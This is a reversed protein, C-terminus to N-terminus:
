LKAPQVPSTTKEGTSLKQPTNEDRCSPIGAEIATGEEYDNWTAILVFPIPQNAPVYKRWFNMTDRFTKGCRASMHRNLSWHAKTDNFQSWAGGVIIKDPYQSVMTKYFHSLYGKGWNSGNPAWGKPGPNVWAYYGDIADAYKGPLNEDILFPAPNWTNVVERVLDWNTHGTTPFIFIVPRGRYTLYAEHGPAKASLYTDHFMKLDAITEDTAGDEQHTEDYMMAVYFHQEGAAKQVLAYSKNIFPQRDGYWDVVFGSIGMGRAEQIQRRIVAPDHSSYQIKIHQPHGFWGEYVALIEPSNGTATYKLQVPKSSGSDNCARPLLLLLLLLISAYRLM